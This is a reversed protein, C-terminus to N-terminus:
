KHQSNTQLQNWQGIVERTGSNCSILHVNGEEIWFIAEQQWKRGLEIIKVESNSAIGFGPEQHTQDPSCGTVSFSVEEASELEDKLCQTLRINEKPSVTKGDPNCSTVVGFKEPLTGNLDVLFRTNKYEPNM